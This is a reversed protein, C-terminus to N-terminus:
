TSINKGLGSLLVRKDGVRRTKRMRDFYELLPLCFRRSTNLIDRAQGITVQGHDKLYNELLNWAQNVADQSFYFEEGVKVLLGQQICYQLLDLDNGLADQIDEIGPPSFPKEEMIRMMEQVQRQQEETLRIRHGYLAVNQGDVIIEGQEVWRDLLAQFLRPTLHKWLRTRLEEKSYGSRLPYRQQYKELTEHLEETWEEQLSSPVVFLDKGTSLVVEIEGAEELENLIQGMEEESFGTRGVLESLAVPKKASRLEEAVRTSPTGTLKRELGEIVEQRMRRHRRGGVEIIEGGGITAIPSYRRIVFRDHVAAVIPEELDLQVLATDGQNLEDRDLLRVRGFAEKTGLHFRVRQWNRLPQPAKELLHLSATVRRVVPFSDPTVLVDGRTLQDLEIGTLNVAVRQGAFAEEVKNNHVQLSRVRGTLGSPQIELTDGVHTKGSFLTGTAVTGFGTITFVRDVPLRADGARPKPEIELAMKELIGRLEDIGQGTVVSTSVIPAESFRTPALLEQVDEEIMMLWEEDVLDAKTLAVVARQIHLLEIIDLHERTQPMVGEDAAVVFMVLDIGGAGALMNKVFREHGPVDVIGATIDENIRLTAFGLEISIGREQEEKLRDTNTGTLAKVLETKGHDVHGATGIIIFLSM